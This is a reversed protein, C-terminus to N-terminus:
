EYILVWIHDGSMYPHEYILSRSVTYTSMYPHEYIFMGAYPHEYIFMGYIIVTYSKTSNDYVTTYIIMYPRIHNYRIHNTHEYIVVM